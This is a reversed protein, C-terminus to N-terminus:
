HAVRARVSKAGSKRTRATAAPTDDRGHAKRVIAHEANAPIGDEKLETVAETIIKQREASSKAKEFGDFLDKVKDHDKLIISIAHTDSLTLRELM